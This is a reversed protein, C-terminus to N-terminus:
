PQVVRHPILRGFSTFVEYPITEGWSAIEAALIEAGSQQGLLVAEDGQRAAPARGLDVSTLNMSIRGLVKCYQGGVLIQGGRAFSRFFGDAYGVPIVGVRTPQEVHHTRGYGITAGKDLTRVQVLHTKIEMVPELGAKRPDGGRPDAGYLALGTRVMDFCSRPYYLATGSNGIHLAPTANLIVRVTEVVQEFRGIEASTHYIGGTGKVGKEPPTEESAPLHSMVGVVRFLTTDRFFPLDEIFERYPYGLRGMGRDVKLHVPLVQGKKKLFEGWSLRDERNVLVQELGLEVVDPYEGPLSPILKIIRATRGLEQRLGWAEDLSVICFTRCGEQFLIKAVAKLGHGYADAKVVAAVESHSGAKSKLFHYNHVLASQKLHIQTPHFLSQPM